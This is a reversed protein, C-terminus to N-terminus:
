TLPLTLTFTSGRGPESHVTLSGGLRQALERSIYLGLGLGERRSGDRRTLRYARDFIHEQEEPPIGPGQDQVDISLAAGCRLHVAIVPEAGGYKAANELLNTIIQAVRSADSHIFPAGDLVETVRISPHRMRLGAVEEHLLQVVDVEDFDFNLVAGELRALDFFDDLIRRLRGAERAVLRVEEQAEAPLDQRRALRNTFGVVTTLPNRLEHAGISFLENRRAVEQEARELAQQQMTVVATTQALSELLRVDESDFHRDASHSAIWITGLDRQVSRVPVVLLEIIPVHSELMPFHRVPWEYLQPAGLRLCVDSPSPATPVTSGVTTAFAGAGGAQRLVREGEHDDVLLTVGASGAQCLALATSALTEFAASTGRLLAASLDRFAESEAQYDPERPVRAYLQPTIVVEDLQARRATSM